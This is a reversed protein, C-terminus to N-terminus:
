RFADRIAGTVEGYCETVAITQDEAGGTTVYTGNIEYAAPGNLNREAADARRVRRPNVSRILAANIFVPLADYEHAAPMTLAIFPANM